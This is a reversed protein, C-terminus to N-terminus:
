CVASTIYQETVSCTGWNINITIVTGLVQFCLKAANAVGMKELSVCAEQPIERNTIVPDALSKQVRM